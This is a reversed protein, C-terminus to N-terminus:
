AFKNEGGEVHYWGCGFITVGGMDLDYFLCVDNGEAITKKLDYKFKMKKMDSMYVEAGDRSGLVGKFTMDSTLYNGATAFDEKNLADIFTLVVEKTNSAAEQTNNKM